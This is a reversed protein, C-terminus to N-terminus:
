HSNSENHQSTDRSVVRSLKERAEDVNGETLAREVNAGHESLSVWGIALWGFLLSFWWGGILTDLLWVLIVIPLVAILWAIAGKSKKEPGRNLLAEIKEVLLGYAVLPHYRKPEGIVYDILLSIPLILLQLM